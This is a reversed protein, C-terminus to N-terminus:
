IQNLGVVVDGIRINYRKCYGSSVELVYNVPTTPYYVKFEGQAIDINQSIDIIKNDSIWIIDIPIKMGKMWFGYRNKQGMVFLMGENENLKYVGGLGKQKESTTKALAVKLTRNNIQITSTSNKFVLRL